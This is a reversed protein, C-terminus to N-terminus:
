KKNISYKKIKKKVGFKLVSLMLPMVNKQFHHIGHSLGVNILLPMVNMLNKLKVIGIKLEV